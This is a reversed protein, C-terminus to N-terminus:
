FGLHLLFACTLSRFLHLMLFLLLLFTLNGFRCKEPLSNPQIQDRFLCECLGEEAFGVILGTM